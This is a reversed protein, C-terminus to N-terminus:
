SDIAKFCCWWDNVHVCIDWKRWHTFYSLSTLELAWCSCALTRQPPLSSLLSRLPTTQCPSSMSTTRTARPVSSSTCWVTVALLPWFSIEQHHIYFFFSVLIVPLSTKTVFDSDFLLVPFLIATVHGLAGQHLAGKFYGGHFFIQSHDWVFIHDHLLYTTSSVMLRQLIRWLSSKLIMPWKTTSITWLSYTMSEVFPLHLLLASLSVLFDLGIWSGLSHSGLLRGFLAVIIFKVLSM